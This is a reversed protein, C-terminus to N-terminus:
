VRKNIFGNGSIANQIFNGNFNGGKKLTLKGMGHKEGKVFNGEFVDGNELIEIGHGDPLDDEWEGDFSNILCEKQVYKSFVKEQDFGM